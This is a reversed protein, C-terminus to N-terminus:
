ASGSTSGASYRGVTLDGFDTANGTTQVTVYDIVNNNTTGGSFTAYTGDGTGTPRNRASTLDGFDTTDGTTVMTVYEIVNVNSSIYGGAWLARTTDSASALNYKASILSGFVTADAPTAVTVYDIKSSRTSTYGGGILGYTGDGCGANGYGGTTLDGFDTANGATAITFYDLEKKTGGNGGAFIGYTGDSCSALYSKTQSLDGFDAGNGTTAITIYEVSTDGFGAILATTANSLAALGAKSQTLDGFDTANGTTAIAFYDIVNSAGGSAQGGAVIARDGYWLGAWSLAFINASTDQNIGDSTTFTLEFTGAYAETTSPTITFVNDAQSVTATTGGGNTLGGSTVNYGYTLPVDEPDSATITIVTTSGDTALTFPTSGGDSDQVSTISPNTNVLSVSYWGTGNSIYFRNTGTVYAMDGASLGTLPLLEASDYVSAGAAIDSAAIAGSANFSLVQGETGDDLVNALDGLKRNISM